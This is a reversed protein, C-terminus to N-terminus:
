LARLAAFWFRVCCLIQHTRMQNKKEMQNQTSFILVWPQCTKLMLSVQGKMDTHDHGRVAGIQIGTAYPIRTVKRLAQEAESSPTASPRAAPQGGMETQATKGTAMVTELEVKKLHNVIRQFCRRKSGSIALNFFTCGARLAALASNMNLKTGNVVIEDDEQPRVVIQGEPVERGELQEVADPLDVDEDDDVQLGDGELRVPFSEPSEDMFNFGMVLPDKEADTLITIVKRKGKLDYFEADLQILGAASECFEVVYWTKDHGEVLTTSFVPGSLRPRM